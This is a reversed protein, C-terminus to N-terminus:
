SRREIQAGLARLRDDIQEYGREIQGINQIVSDGQAALAALLMAMGARIDPSEVVQGRLASPGAIVARHPDCLVIRAGMGILKDVFFLRSEFLKEFVLLLGECQTAVVIAISMLDAPFAPWPGDELKPVHGGLDPRIRREQGADIVLNTGDIRPRVGLREFGMLTSRLDDPRVGEITVAGGTVAALGIFSGIEIHDPGITHPAATLPGGDITLTNTGIGDIKAGMAVLFRALDQVHPESAANRLVTTGQARVAAMLANETGTVSPEDLFIDAGKLKGELKYADGVSVDAGLRELALFHTDVRRRGIVDGGPPPLTVRGFRALMPGALLISARIEKSLAPDLAKPEARSTDVEVTNTGHWQVSAGVHQLLALLTEVDRIRPVNDIRCPGDALLTAALIPLAANKNGAPRITGSLARGGTVRFSPPM